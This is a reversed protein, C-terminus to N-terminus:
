LMSTSIDVWGNKKRYSFTSIKTKLFTMLRVFHCQDSTEKTTLVSSIASFRISRKPSSSKEFYRLKQLIEFDKLHHSRIFISAQLTLVFATFLGEFYKWNWFTIIANIHTSAYKTKIMASSVLLWAALPSDEHGVAFTGSLSSPLVQVIEVQIIRNVWMTGQNSLEVHM